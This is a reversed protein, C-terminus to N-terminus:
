NVVTTWHNGVLGLLEISNLCHSEHAWKRDVFVCVCVEERKRLQMSQQKDRCPRDNVSMKVVRDM